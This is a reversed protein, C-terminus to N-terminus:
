EDREKVRKKARQCAKHAMIDVQRNGKAAKSQSKTHGKVKVMKVSQHLDLAEFLAIWLDQNAVDEGKSNKWNKKEWLKRWNRRVGNVVLSSDCYVIVNSPGHQEYVAKLGEIVAIKETRSNTTGEEIEGSKWSPKGNANALWAWGGPGVKGTSAGDTWLDVIM